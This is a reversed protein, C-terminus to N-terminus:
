EHVADGKKGILITINGGTRKSVGQHVIMGKKNYVKHTEPVIVKDPDDVKGNDHFITDLFQKFKFM